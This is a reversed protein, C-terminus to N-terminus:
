LLLLVIHVPLIRGFLLREAGLHPGHDIGPQGLTVLRHRGGTSRAFAGPLEVALRGVGVNALSRRIPVGGEVFAAPHRRVPWLLVAAATERRHLLEDEVLLYRPGTRWAHAAAAKGHKPRREDDVAVVLLAALVERRNERAFRGPRLAVGLGARTGVESRQLRPGHAVAIVEHDVALLDPGAARVGGIGDEGQHARVGLRGLVAADREDEDLVDLLWPDGDAREDVHAPAVVEVLDVEFVHAHGGAVDDAFDVAAPVDAHRQEIEFTRVDASRDGRSPGQVAQHVYDVVIRVETLTDLDRRNAVLYGLAVDFGFHKRLSRHLEHLSGGHFM